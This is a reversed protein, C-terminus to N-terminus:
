ISSVSKLLPLNQIPVKAVMCWTRLLLCSQFQPRVDLDPALVIFYTDLIQSIEMGDIQAPSRDRDRVNAIFKMGNETEVKHERRKKTQKPKVVNTLVEVWWVSSGVVVYVSDYMWWMAVAYWDYM